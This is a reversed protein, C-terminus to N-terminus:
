PTTYYSWLIEHLLEAWLCKVDDLKKKLGKLLIKNVYKAQGNVREVIIKAMAEVEVWKTFYDGGVILFKM